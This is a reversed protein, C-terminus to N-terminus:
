AASKSRRRMQSTISRRTEFQQVPALTIAPPDWTIGAPVGTLVAGLLGEGSTRLIHVALRLRSVPTHGQGAVLLTADCQRAIIATDSSELIAATDFIIIDAHSRASILLESLQMPTIPPPSSRTSRSIAGVPLLWVNPMKTQVMIENLPRHSTLFDMLGADSNVGCTGAMSPNRLNADIILVRAGHEAWTWALNAATTSVGEGRSAGCICLSRLTHDAFDISNRIMRYAEVSKGSNAASILDKQRGLIGLLPVNLQWGIEGPERISKDMRDVVIALMAGVALGLLLSMALIQRPTGLDASMPVIAAEILEAAPGGMQMDVELKQARDSLLKHLNRQVEERQTAAIYQAYGGASSTVLKQADDLKQRSQKSRTELAEDQIRARAIIRYTQERADAVLRGYEERAQQVRPHGVGYRSEAEAVRGDVEILKLALNQSIPDPPSATQLATIIDGQSSIMADLRIHSEIAVAEAQAAQQRLPNLMSDAALQNQGIALGLQQRIEQTEGEAMRLYGAQQECEHQLRDLMVQAQAFRPQNAQSIYVDVVANAIDSALQPDENTVRIETINADIVRRPSVDMKLRAVAGAETTQWKAPLDLKKSVGELIRPSRLVYYQARITAADDALSRNESLFGSSRDTLLRIRAEASYRPQTQSAMFVGIALSAAAICTVWRRRRKLAASISHFPAPTAAVAVTGTTAPVSTGETHTDAMM